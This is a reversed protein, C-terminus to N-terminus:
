GFGFSLLFGDSIQVCQLIAGFLVMYVTDVVGLIRLYKQRYHGLEHCLIALIESPHEYHVRILPMGIVLQQDILAANAHVDYEYSREIKINEPDLGVKETEEEMFGVLPEMYSPMSEFSSFLPMILWPYIKVLLIKVLATTLLFVLVLYNGSWEIVKVILLSVSMNIIIFEIIM